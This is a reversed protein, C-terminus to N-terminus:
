SQNGDEECEADREKELESIRDLFQNVGALAAEIKRGEVKYNKIYRTKAEM